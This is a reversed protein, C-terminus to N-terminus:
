QLNYNLSKVETSDTKISFVNYIVQALLDCTVKDGDYNLYEKSLIKLVDFWTLKNFKFTKKFESTKLIDLATEGTTLVFTNFFNLIKENSETKEIKEIPEIKDDTALELKYGAKKLINILERASIEDKMNSFQEYYEYIKPSLDKSRQIMDDIDLYLVLDSYCNFSMIPQVDPIITFDNYILIGLYVDYIAKSNNFEIILIPTYADEVINAKADYCILKILGTKHEAYFKRTTTVTSIQIKFQELKEKFNQLDDENYLDVVDVLNGFDDVLYLVTSKDLSFQNLESTSDQVEQLQSNKLQEWIAQNKKFVEKSTSPKIDIKKHLFTDAGKQLEYVAKGQEGIGEFCMFQPSNWEIKNPHVANVMIKEFM